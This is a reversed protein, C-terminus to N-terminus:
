WCEVMVLLSGFFGFCWLLLTLLWIYVLLAFVLAFVMLLLGVVLENFVICAIVCFASNGVIFVVFGLCGLCSFVM